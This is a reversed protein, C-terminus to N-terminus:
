RISTTSVNLPVTSVVFDFTELAGGPLRLGMRGDSEVIARVPQSLRFLTGRHRLTTELASILSRYGGLLYGKREPGTNKERNMRSSLWLAPLAAYHDGIKAALLPKWLIEFGRDGVMGRIWEAASIEDLAPSLGDIRARLGMVGLRLREVLTLPTFRLLDLANNLAFMRGQYMFGMGTERWRLENELGVERVLRHLAHDSPLLCHYFKEIHGSRYPFTGALGGLADSHEFLTVRHGMRTLALSTAM